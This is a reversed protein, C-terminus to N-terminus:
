EDDILGTEQATFRMSSATFRLEIKGVPGNRNKRILIDVMGKRDTDPEYYDERFLMLVLDADQEISGSERLDALQPLKGPRNEVARSLQSLCVIPIHLERGLQKLARSIESVEQVRNGAYAANGSTMLQLYDIIIMDLSHEMQLRRAKARVESLSAGVTDDIFIHAKALDDVNRALSNMEEESLEGKNLKWSDLGGTMCILRDTLQEKSMELSFIAIRKGHTLAANHAINLAFATKGMSPRAAVIILDSPKLGNMVYDLNAFGSPIGQLKNSDESAAADLFFSHRGKLIDKIHTFKNKLFTQSIQFVNKEASELDEEIPNKEDFGLGLINNGASIMKRRTSKNKVVLAYSVIHASTPVESQISALYSMGGIADLEKNEALTNSLTLLDIPINSQFQSTMANWIKQHKEFYFDEPLLLDAVKILSEKEILVSGLVAKESEESHPPIKLNKLDSAM